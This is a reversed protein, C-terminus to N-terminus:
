QGPRQSGLRRRRWTLFGVLPVGLAGLIAAQKPAPPMRGAAATKGLDGPFEVSARDDVNDFTTESSTFKEDVPKGHITGTFHLVYTGAKMPIIAADYEGPTGMGSDPDFAAMLGVPDSTKDKYIVQLKLTDGLDNVPHGSADNLFLQIANRVGTFTPEDRWGVLVSYGAVMRHEHASASVVTTLALATGAVVGFSVRLSRSPM